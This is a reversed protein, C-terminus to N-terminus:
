LKFILLFKSDFVLLNRLQISRNRLLGFFKSFQIRLARSDLLLVGFVHIFHLNNELLILGLSLLILFTLSFHFFIQSLKCFFFSFCLLKVSAFYLWELAFKLQLVSLHYCFVLLSIIFNNLFFLSQLCDAILKIPSFSFHCFTPM